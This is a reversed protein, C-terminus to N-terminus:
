QVEFAGLDCTNVHRPYGSGRQDWQFIRNTDGCGAPDGADIAPSGPLLSRSWTEGGNDALPSLMPDISVPSTGVLDGPLPVYNCLTDLGIINNLGNLFQGPSLACDRLGNDAFINHRLTLSGLLPAALGYIDNNAITNNNLEVDINPLPDAGFGGSEFFVAGKNRNDTNDSLTNNNLKFTIDSGQNESHDRVMIASGYSSSNNDFVSHSIRIKRPLNEGMANFIYLPAFGTSNTNSSITSAGIYLHQCFTNCTFVSAGGFIPSLSQNNVFSSQVILNKQSLLFIGGSNQETDEFTSKLIVLRNNGFQTESAYDYYIGFAGLSANGIFRSSQIYIDVDTSKIVFVGGNHNATNGVVDIDSLIVRSNSNLFLAGADDTATNEIMSSGIMTLHTGSQIYLAGGNEAINNQFIVNSTSIRGNALAYIAGGSVRANGAINTPDGNEITLNALRFNLGNAVDFIRSAGDGSIIVPDIADGIINVSEAVDLDGSESNIDNDAFNSPITLTYTGGPMFITDAGPCSNAEMVAARLSCDGSNDSCICDAPTADTTDAITDVFLNLSKSASPAIASIFCFLLTSSLIHFWSQSPKSVVVQALTSEIQHSAMSQM